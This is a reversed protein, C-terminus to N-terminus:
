TESWGLATPEYRLVRVRGTVGSVRVVYQVGRASRLYLSGSTCTGQPSFSVLDSVGFRVPDTSGAEGDPGVVDAAIAVEVRPFMAGLAHPGDLCSDTVDLEPRKVGNGNGDVCIRYQWAGGSLDFVVAVTQGKHVARQRALRFRSSVFGAAQRVRVGDVAVATLPATVGALAVVLTMVLVLELVTWGVDRDTRASLGGTPGASM